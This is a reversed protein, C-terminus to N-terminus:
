RGVKVGYSASTANPRAGASQHAAAAAGPRSRHYTSSWEGGDAAYYDMPYDGLPQQRRQQQDQRRAERQQRREERRASPQLSVRGMAAAAAGQAVAEGEEEEDDEDDEDEGDDWWDAPARGLAVLAEYPTLTPRQFGEGWDISLRPCAVQVWVDVHAIMALKQPTVESLLITAALVPRADPDAAPAPAPVAAAAASAANNNDEQGAAAAAASPNSADGSGGAQVLERQLLRMLQPNGQRGLTGLVVGWRSGPRRAAEVARRRAARMSRHAYRERTLERSYPDYRFAPVGPNAIMMAELHFRGDAVFVLADVAAASPQAKQQQQQQQQQQQKDGGGGGRCCAGGGRPAAAATLLRPATCGLVEGPSLPRAKPVLLSSPPYPPHPGGGSEGGSESEGGALLAARAAAIAGSFQITGALALCRVPMPLPLPLSSDTATAETAGTAAATAEAGGGGGGAAGGAAEVRAAGGGDLGAALPPFNLRVTDVLHGVDVAIDVFVYMCPVVTVGVPVLCSHGYHVLLDCGLARASLDDVCCAGYTVDALVVCHDAGGFREVLDALALSFMLLGEPFQLAVVKAKSQRVRWITKEVEFNYNQPLVSKAQRLLPDHLITDPVQQHHHISSPGPRAAASPVIAAAAATAAAAAQQSPHPAPAHPHQQQQHQPTTNDGDRARASFTQPPPPAAAPPAAAEGEEM